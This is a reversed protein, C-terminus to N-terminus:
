GLRQVSLTKFFIAENRVFNFPLKRPKRLAVNRRDFFRLSPLLTIPFYPSLTILSCGIQIEEKIKKSVRGIEGNGMM